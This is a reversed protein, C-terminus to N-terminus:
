LGSQNRMFRGLEVRAQAKIAQSDEDNKTLAKLKQEAALLKDCLSKLRDQSVASLSRDDKARLEALSKARKLLSDLSEIVGDAEQVFTLGSKVSLTGTNEGAGVLVPSVEHIKCGPMGDPTPRLTRYAKMGAGDTGGESSGGEVITFGYSYEQLPKGNKMDFMLSSHWDRALQVDLNMKLEALAQDGSEYITGKGLPVSSWDHAPLMVVDQKGFFGPLTIDGDKDIVNMTAFCALVMGEPSVSKILISKRM